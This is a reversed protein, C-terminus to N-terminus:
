GVKKMLLNKVIIVPQIFVLPLACAVPHGIKTIALVCLVIFIVAYRATYSLRMLTKGGNVDNKVAKDSASVANLAMIYFNLITLGGGVLGGVLVTWDFRGLVWFVIFMVGVLLMEGIAIQISERKVFKAGDM